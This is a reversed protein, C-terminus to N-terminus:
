MRQLSIDTTAYIPQNACTKVYRKFIFYLMLTFIIVLFKKSVQIIRSNKSKKKNIM